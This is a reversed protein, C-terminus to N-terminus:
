QQTNALVNIRASGDNVNLQQGNSGHTLEYASENYGVVEFSVSPYLIGTLSDFYNAPFKQNSPVGANADELMRTGVSLFSGDAGAPLNNGDGGGRGNERNYQEISDFDQYGAGGGNANFDPLVFGTYNMAKSRETWPKGRTGDQLNDTDGGDFGNGRAFLADCAWAVNIIFYNPHKVVWIGAPSAARASQQALSDTTTKSLPVCNLLQANVHYHSFGANALNELTIKKSVYFIENHAGRAPQWDGNDRLRHQRFNKGSGCEGLNGDYNSDLRDGSIDAKTKVFPPLRYAEPNGHAAVLSCAVNVYDAAQNGPFNGKRYWDAKDWMPEPNVTGQPYGFEDVVSTLLETYTAGGRERQRALAGEPGYSFGGTILGACIVKSGAAVPPSTSSAPLEPIQSLIDQYLEGRVKDLHAETVVPNAISVQPTAAAIGARENYALETTRFFPRIDIIDTETIIDAIPGSDRSVVVYAIPLISQGILALSTTELNEALLPALNMLDDPSPFSGRVVGASTTFGTSESANSGGDGPHALMIPTGELSTQISVRDDANDNNNATQLSVGVGAGKVIGLMPANTIKPAGDEFKSLTTESEDIAKSYVFVLDIRQQVGNLPVKNGGEDFYFFDDDDFDPLTMNLEEPVDVVSTRTVGRWRKIFESELRGQQNGNTENQTYIDQILTLDRSTDVTTHKLIAGIYNPYLPQNDSGENQIEDFGPSTINLLNRDRANNVDEDSVPFVFSREALGNMNLSNGTIGNRFEDLVGAVSAGTNTDVRWNNVAGARPEVQPDFDFVQEIVQLPTINYANNIRSTYRGPKVRVVRDSGTVYPKLESFGSRDIESTSPTNNVGRTLLGDVQDKLFNTNEELQKIPINDVEYYYPDNSKFHRVPNIYTYATDYYTKENAM